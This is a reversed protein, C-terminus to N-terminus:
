QPFRFFQIKMEPMIPHLWDSKEESKKNKNTYLLISPGIDFTIGLRKTVHFNRGIAPCFQFTNWIAKGDELYWYIIRGAISWNKRHYRNNRGFYYQNDMALTINSGHLQGTNFSSGIDMGMSFDNFLLDFGKHFGQWIGYGANLKLKSQQAFSTNLGIFILAIWVYKGLTFIKFDIWQM